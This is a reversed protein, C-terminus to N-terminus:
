FGRQNDTELVADDLIETMQMTTTTRGLAVLCVMALEAGDEAIGIGADPKGFGVTLLTELGDDEEAGIQQIVLCLRILTLRNYLLHKCAALCGGGVEVAVQHDNQEDDGVLWGKAMLIFAPKLRVCVTGKDEAAEVGDCFENM